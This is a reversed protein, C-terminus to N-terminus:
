WSRAGRNKAPRDPGSALAGWAILFTVLSAGFALESVVFGNWGMRDISGDLATALSAAGAAAMGVTALNQVMGLPLHRTEVSWAAYGVILATALGTFVYHVIDTARSRETPFGLVLYFSVVGGVGIWYKLREGDRWYVRRFAESALAFAIGYGFNGVGAALLVGVDDSCGGNLLGSLHIWRREGSAAWADIPYIIATTLAILAAAGWAPWLPM